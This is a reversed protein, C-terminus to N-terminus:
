APAALRDAIRSGIALSATAAPSPANLVHLVDGDREMLFDDVMSGDPGLVQARVGSPGFSVQSEHLAPLYRQMERVAASKVVDRYIEGAGTRYYRAALKWFGPYGLLDIADRLDLSLRGYGERALAPVANPGAWVQGDIRPSFHVGLVPFSPDPM